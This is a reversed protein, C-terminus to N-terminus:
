QDPGIPTAFHWINPVEIVYGGHAKAHIVAHEFNSNHGLYRIKGDKTLCIILYAKM